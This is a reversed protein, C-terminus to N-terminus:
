DSAKYSHVPIQCFGKIKCVNAEWKLKTALQTSIGTNSLLFVVTRPASARATVATLLGTANNSIFWIATLNIVSQGQNCMAVQLERLEWVSCFCWVTSQHHIVFHQWCPLDNTWIALSSAEIFLGPALQRPLIQLGNSFKWLFVEYFYDLFHCAIHFVARFLVGDNDADWIVLFGGIEEIKTSLHMLWQHDMAM